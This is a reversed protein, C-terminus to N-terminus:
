SDSRDFGQTRFLSDHITLQLNKYNVTFNLFFIFYNVQLTFNVAFCNVKIFYFISM